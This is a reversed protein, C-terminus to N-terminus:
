SAQRVGLGRPDLEALEHGEPDVVTMKLQYGLGEVYNSLTSVLMDGGKETDSIRPQAVGIREALKAQTLQAELRLEALRSLHRRQDELDLAEAIRVERDFEPDDYGLDLDEIPVLTGALDAPVEVDWDNKIDKTM